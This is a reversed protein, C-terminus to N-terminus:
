VVVRTDLYSFVVLQVKCYYFGWGIPQYLGLRLLFIFIFYNSIVCYLIFSHYVFPEGWGSLKYKLKSRLDRPPRGISLFNVFFVKERFYDRSLNM